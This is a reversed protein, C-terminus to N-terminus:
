VSGMRTYGLRLNDGTVRADEESVSDLMEKMERLSERREIFFQTGKGERAAMAANMGVMRRYILRAAAWNGAVVADDFDSGLQRYNTESPVM